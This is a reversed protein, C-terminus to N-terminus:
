WDERPIVSFGQPRIEEWIWDHVTCPDVIVGIEVFHRVIQRNVRNGYRTGTRLRTGAVDCIAHFCNYAPECCRSRTFSDFVKYEVIGSTEAEELLQYRCRANEFLEATVQYPGWMSVCLGHECAWQMSELLSRNIGLERPPLLFRVGSAGLWSITFQETIRADDLEVWTAFSHALWPSPIARGPQQAAFLLVYHTKAGVASALALTALTLTM